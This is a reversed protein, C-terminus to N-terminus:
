LNTPLFKALIGGRNRSAELLDVFVQTNTEVSTLREILPALEERVANRVLDGMASELMTAIPNGNSTSSFAQMMQFPTTPQDSM